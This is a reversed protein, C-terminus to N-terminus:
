RASYRSGITLSSGDTPRVVANTGDDYLVTVPVFTRGVEGEIYVGTVGDVTAVGRSAVATGSFSAQVTANVVRANMVPAVDDEILLITLTEGDAATVSEALATYPRDYNGELVVSYSEGEVFSADSREDTVVALYWRQTNAIRYLPKEASTTSSPIKGGKIVSQIDGPLIQAMTARNLVAEYGDFYFSIMGSTQSYVDQKWSEVRDLLTQEREYLGMLHEDPQLSDRLFERRDDMLTKLQNELTLMDEGSEGRAVAGIREVLEDIAADKSELETNVIDALVTETQYARIEQQMTLLDQLVSDYTGWKFVEAIKTGSTIREGEAVFYNIRGYSEATVVSEDRIVVATVAAEMTVTGQEVLGGTTRFILVMVVIVIAALVALLLYFKINPRARRNAM